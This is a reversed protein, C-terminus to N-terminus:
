QEMYPCSTTSEVLPLQLIISGVSCGAERQFYLFESTILHFAFLNATVPLRIWSVEQATLARGSLWSLRVVVLGWCDEM